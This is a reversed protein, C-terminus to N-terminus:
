RSQLNQLTQNSYSELQPYFNLFATELDSRLPELEPGVDEFPNGRKFRRGINRAAAPVTKWDVYLNLIDHEVMRALMTQASTGLEHEKSILTALVKQNFQPLPVDDFRAWHTSLYHDFSLDILIGAYRRLHPPFKRRLQVVEPHSDTFADIARHLEIGVGLPLNAQTRVSGKYYDGELAGAVVNDDPWALHFHALFNM